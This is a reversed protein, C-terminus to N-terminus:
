AKDQGLDFGASGVHKRGGGTELVDATDREDQRRGFYSGIIGATQTMMGVSGFLAVLLVPQLFGAERNRKRKNKWNRNKRGYM